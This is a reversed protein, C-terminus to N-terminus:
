HNKSIALSAVLGLISVLLAMGSLSLGPVDKTEGCSYEDLNWPQFDVNDSVPNGAGEPNLTPHYPGSVHGWWNHIADVVPATSEVGIDNGYIKNCRAVVTSTDASDYGVAIGVYNHYLTNEIIESTTGPGYYTTVMIAASTSGDVSAVGYNNYIRNNRVFVNAGAGIDLGYDLWDGAGKGTYRNNEFISDTITTGYYLVGIRGIESFTSDKVHVNGTGFAAIAIGSYHPGGENYKINKFDVKTISGEGKQRIAQYILHGQGDLVVNHLNFRKGADVLFWGRSDGSAGTDATPKIIPKSNGSITLDKDIVIQGTEEYIGEHVNIIGGDVAAPVANQIYTYHDRSTLWDIPMYWINGTNRTGDNQRESTFFLYDNGGTSYAVPWMDVWPTSMYGGKTVMRSTASDLEALTPATWAAIYQQTGDWPAYMLCYNGDGGIQFLTPDSDDNATGTITHDATTSWGNDYTHIYYAPSGWSVWILHLDSNSDVYFRPMGEHANVDTAASWATDFTRVQIKSGVANYALFIKNDYVEAWLHPAGSGDFGTDHEIWTTGGDSTHWAKISHDIVTEDAAFVWVKSDFYVTSTQGQFINDAGTVMMPIALALGSITTAKKYHIEYNNDDPSGSDYNGTEDTSRGYFLWYNTGDYTIAQGREYYTNSTVQLPQSVEITAAEVSYILSVLLVYLVLLNGRKSM